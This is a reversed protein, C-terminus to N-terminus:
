QQELINILSWAILTTQSHQTGPESACLSCASSWILNGPVTQHVTQRSQKENYYGPSFPLEQKAQKVKLLLQSYSKTEGIKWKLTSQTPAYVCMSRSGRFQAFAHWENGKFFYHLKQHTITNECCSFTTRKFCNPSISVTHWTHLRQM